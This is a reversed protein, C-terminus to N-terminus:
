QMQPKIWFVFLAIAAYIYVFFLHCYRLGQAHQHSGNYPELPGSRHQLSAVQTGGVVNRVKFCVVLLVFAAYLLGFFSSVMEM